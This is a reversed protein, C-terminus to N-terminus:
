TRVPNHVARNVDREFSQMKGAGVLLVVGSVIGFAAILSILGALTIGPYMMAFVGAAIAFLGFAMTWGWSLNAKREQIAVYAGLVGATILWLAAWLVVFTLSLAPYYYLAAIGFLTGVLGTLLLVWWHASVSRLEFAHVMSIIGDGLAWIAIVLAFAAVSELPRAIIFIGLAIGLLGRVILAWKSQNYLSKMDDTIM